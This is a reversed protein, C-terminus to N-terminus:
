VKCFIYFFFCSWNYSQESVLLSTLINRFLLLFATNYNARINFALIKFSDQSLHEHKNTQKLEPKADWDVAITMDPRQRWKIPCSGLMLFYYGGLYVVISVHM